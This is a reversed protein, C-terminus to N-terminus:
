PSFPFFKKGNGPKKSPNECPTQFIGWGTLGLLLALPLLSLFPPLGLWLRGLNLGWEGQFFRPALGYLVPSPYNHAIDPALLVKTDVGSPPQPDTAVIILHWLFAWALLLGFLWKKQPSIGKLALALPALLFPIAPCLLRPLAAWGGWWMYYASNFLLYAGLIALGLLVDAGYTGAKKLRALAGFAALLFPSYFFLGKFPHLTVYLLVHLNPGQIGQFGEAMEERFLTNHEYKYPLAFDGFLHYTYSFFVVVPVLGAGIFFAIAWFRQRLRWLAYLGLGIGALGVTYEFFWALGLLLGSILLRPGRALKQSWAEPTFHAPPVLIAYAAMACLASPLYAFFLTSYPGLLSGWLLGISLLAALNSGLGFRKALGWLVLGLLAASIGVTGIRCLYRTWFVWVGWHQHHLRGLFDSNMRAKWVLNYLPTALFSLGPAKDCYFHGKFYAKDGTETMPQDHYADISFTQREVLAYVLGLRTNVNWGPALHQFWAFSIWLFLFLFVAPRYRSLFRSAPSLAAAM